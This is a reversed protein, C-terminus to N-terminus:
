IPDRGIKPKKQNFTIMKQDHRQLTTHMKNKNTPLRSTFLKEWGAIM